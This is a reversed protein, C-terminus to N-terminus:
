IEKRTWFRKTWATLLRGAKHTIKYFHYKLQNNCYQIIQLAACFVLVRMCFCNSILFTILAILSCLVSFMVTILQDCNVHDNSVGLSLIDFHNNDFFLKLLEM